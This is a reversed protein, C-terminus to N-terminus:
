PVKTTRTARTARKQALKERLALAQLTQRHRRRPLCILALVVLLFVGYASWVFPGHGSM